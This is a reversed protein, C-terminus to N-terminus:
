LTSHTLLKGAVVADRPSFCDTVPRFFQRLAGPPRQWCSSLLLARASRDWRGSANQRRRRTGRPRHSAPAPAAARPSAAGPAPPTEPAAPSTGGRAPAASAPTPPTSR